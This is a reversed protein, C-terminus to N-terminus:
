DGAETMLSEVQSKLSEPIEELTLRGLKIQLALFRAM